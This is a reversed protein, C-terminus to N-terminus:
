DVVSRDSDENLALRVKRVPTYKFTVRVSVQLRSIARCAQYGREQQQLKVVTVKARLRRTDFSCLDGEQAIVLHEVRAFDAWEALENACVDGAGESVIGVTQPERSNLEHLWVLFGIYGGDLGEILPGNTLGCGAVVRQTLPDTITVMEEIPELSGRYDLTITTTADPEPLETAPEGEMRRVGSRTRQGVSAAAARMKALVDNVPKARSEQTTVPSVPELNNRPVGAPRSSMLWLLGVSLLSLFLWFLKNHLLDSIVDSPPASAITQAPPAGAVPPSIPRGSLAEALDRLAKGSNEGYRADDQYIAALAVVSATPDNTSLKSLRERAADLNGDRQYLAAVALIYDDWLLAPENSTAAFRGPVSYGIVFGVLLIALGAILFRTRSSLASFPSM